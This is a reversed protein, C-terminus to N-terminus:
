LSYVIDRWELSPDGYSKIYEIVVTRIIEPDYVWARERSFSVCKINSCGLVQKMILGYTAVQPLSSLFHDEPKYDAVILSHDEPDYLILDIHGTFQKDAMCNYPSPKITRNQISNLDTTWVPVESALAQPHLEIIKQLIPEHRPNKENLQTFIDYWINAMKPLAEIVNFTSKKFDSNVVIQNVYQQKVLSLSIKKQAHPVLHKIRFSSCRLGDKNNFISDPFDPSQTFHIYQLLRHGFKDYIVPNQFRKEVWLLKYELGHHYFCVNQM